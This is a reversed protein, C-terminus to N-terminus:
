VSCLVYAFSAFRFLDAQAFFLTNCLVSM